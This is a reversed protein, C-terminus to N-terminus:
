DKLLLPGTTSVFMKPHKVVINKSTPFHVIRFGNDNSYQHLNENGITSKFISETGVKKKKEGLLIKLHYKPFHYFVHELGEYFSDKGDDRKGRM